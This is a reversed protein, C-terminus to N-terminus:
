SEFDSLNRMRSTARYLYGGTQTEALSGDLAKLNGTRSRGAM